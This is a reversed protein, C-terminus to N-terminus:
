WLPLCGTGVKKALSLGDTQRFYGWREQQHSIEDLMDWFESVAIKIPWTTKEQDYESHLYKRRKLAQKVEEKTEGLSNYGVHWDFHLAKGIPSPYRKGIHIGDVTFFNVVM